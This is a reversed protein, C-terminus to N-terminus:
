TASFSLSFEEWLKQDSTLDLATMEKIYMLSYLPLALVALLFNSRNVYLCASVSESSISVSSDSHVVLTVVLGTAAGGSGTNCSKFGTLGRAAPLEESIAKKKQLNRVPWCQKLALSVDSGTPTTTTAVM